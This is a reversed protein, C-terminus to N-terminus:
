YHVFTVVRNLSMLAYSIVIFMIVLNNALKSVQVYISIILSIILDTCYDSIVSLYYSLVM